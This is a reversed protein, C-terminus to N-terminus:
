CEVEGIKGYKNKMIKTNGNRDVYMVVAHYMIEKINIKNFHSFEVECYDIDKDKENLDDETLILVDHIFM